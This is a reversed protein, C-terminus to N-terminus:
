YDLTKKWHENEYQSKYAVLIRFVNRRREKIYYVAKSIILKLM